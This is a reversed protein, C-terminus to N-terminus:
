IRRRRGPTLILLVGAGVLGLATTAISIPAEVGSAALGGGPTAAGGDAPDAAATILLPPSAFKSTGIRALIYHEGVVADIPIRFTGAFSGDADTTLTGLRLPEPQLEFELLTGPPFNIGSIGIPDGARVRASSLTMTPVRTTGCEAALTVDLGTLNGGAGLDFTTAGDLTHAGGVFQTCFGEAEVGIRYAGAPLPGGSQPASPDLGGFIYAGASATTAIPYWGSGGLLYATVQAGGAPLAGGDSQVTGQINGGRMLDFDVGTRDSEATLEVPAAVGPTTAAPYYQPAFILDSASGSARVTYVGAPIVLQYTGDAATTAAGAVQGESYAEVILGSTPVGEARVTGTIATAAAPAADIAEAKEGVRLSADIGAITGGVAVIRRASGRDAADDWFESVLDAATPGPAFHVVYEGPPLDDVAYGGNADTIGKYAHGSDADSIDVGVGEVPLGSDERTVSGTITTTAIVDAPASAAAGGMVLVATLVSAILGGLRVRRVTRRSTM